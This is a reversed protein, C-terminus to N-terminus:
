FDAQLNKPKCAAKRQLSLAVEASLTGGPALDPRKDATSGSLEHRANESIQSPEDPPHRLNSHLAIGHEACIVLLFGCLPEFVHRDDTMHRPFHGGHDKGNQAIMLDVLRNQRGSCLLKVGM